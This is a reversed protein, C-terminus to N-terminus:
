IKLV